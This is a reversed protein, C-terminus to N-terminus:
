SACRRHAAIELRFMEGDVAREGALQAQQVGVPVCQGGCVHCFIIPAQTAWTSFWWSRCEACQLRGSLLKPTKM